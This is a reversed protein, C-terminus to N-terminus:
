VWRSTSRVMRPPTPDAGKSNSSALRQSLHPAAVGVNSSAQPPQARNSGGRTGFVAAKSSAHLIDVMFNNSNDREWAPPAELQEATSEVESVPQQKDRRWGFLSGCRDPKAKAEKSRIIEDMEKEPVIDM